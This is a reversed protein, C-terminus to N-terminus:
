SCMTWFHVDPKVVRKFGLEKLQAYVKRTESVRIEMEKGAGGIFIFSTDKDDYTGLELEEALQDFDYVGISFDGDVLDSFFAYLESETCDYDNINYNKSGNHLTEYEVSDVVKVQGIHKGTKEDYRDELHSKEPETRRFRKPIGSPFPLLIGIGGASFYDVSM